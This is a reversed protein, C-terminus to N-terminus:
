MEKEQKGGVVKDEETAEVLKEAAENRVACPPMKMTPRVTQAKTMLRQDVWWPSLPRKTVPCLRKSISTQRNNVIPAVKSTSRNKEATKVQVEQYWRLARSEM